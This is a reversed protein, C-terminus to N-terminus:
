EGDTVYLQLKAMLTAPVGCKLLLVILSFSLSPSFLCLSFLFDPSVSVSIVCLVILWAPIDGSDCNYYFFLISSSKCYPVDTFVSECSGVRTGQGCIVKM